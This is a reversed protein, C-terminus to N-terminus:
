TDSGVRAGEMARFYALAFGASCVAGAELPLRRERSVDNGDLFVASFRGARRHLIRDLELCILRGPAPRGNRTKERPWATAPGAGSEDREPDVARYFLGAPYISVGLALHGERDGVSDGRVM